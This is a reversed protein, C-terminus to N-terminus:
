AASPGTDVNRMAAIFARHEPFKDAFWPQLLLWGTYNSDEAVIDALLCGAYKGFPMTLSATPNSPERSKPVGKRRPTSSAPTGRRAVPLRALLCGGGLEQWVVSM